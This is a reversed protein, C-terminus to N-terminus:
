DLVYLRKHQWLHKPKNLNLIIEVVGEKGNEREIFGLKRALRLMPGNNPLVTGVLQLVGRQHKLYDIMKSMLTHGLQHGTYQDGILVSFEATISDPDIWSRVVGALAKNDIAVFAMERDYDIQTFRALEKHDFHQRSNFFRFRLTEASLTKYFDALYGEDEAKIPRLRFTLGKKSHARGELEVPYAKFTPSMSKATQGAVGLVLYQGDNDRIANLELGNITPYQSSLQSIAVLWHSLTTLEAAYNDSREKLIESAHSREILHRALATNLPPIAVQRDTLIDATSGGGGFFLFPGVEEDRGIGFSIQLNDLARHMPQVSYGLIDSSPFREKLESKLRDVETTIKTKSQINLAVSRWRQRANDGYAFPKLYEKHHLKVVWPPSIHDSLKLLEESNESFYNKAISFGYSRILQWALHPPIVDNIPLQRDILESYGAPTVISEPTERLLDQTRMHSVRYMFAKIANDPTDFNPLTNIDLIERAKSVSHDGMFSCFISKNTEGSLSVLAQANAAPDTWLGPIYVVLLADVNPDALVYGAVEKLLEPELEPNLLVPNSSSLYDPLIKKIKNKTSLELNALHGKDHLLRDIALIAGGRSNSIIALREGKLQRKQQITDVCDFLEDTADVRLVGARQLAHDILLDRSLLGPTKIDDSLPSQSFRNSKVALVLKNRSAARLSRLLIRGERFDDLHVLLTKATKSAALHDVVDALKIDQGQGLTLLHSFGINRAIAWDAIANAIAGSQGLYALQGAKVPVHLNSANLKHNPNIIGLCDPGLIRVHTQNQAAILRTKSPTFRSSRVRATGGTMIVAAPINARALSSIIKEVTEAPTCIIALEVGKPLQSIRGYAKIGAVEKYGRANVPFVEGEFGASIINQLVAGGLSRHKDSAGIVAISNPTFIQELARTGM